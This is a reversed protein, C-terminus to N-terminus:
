KKQSMMSMMTFMQDLMQISEEVHQKYAADTLQGEIVAGGGENGQVMVVYAKTWNSGSKQGIVVLRSQDITKNFIEVFPAKVQVTALDKKITSLIAADSVEFTTGQKVQLDEIGSDERLREQEQPTAVHNEWKIGETQAFEKQWKKFVQDIDGAFLFPTCLLFVWVLSMRKM